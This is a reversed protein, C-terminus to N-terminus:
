QNWSNAAHDWEVVRDDIFPEGNTPDARLVACMFHTTHKTAWVLYPANTSGGTENYSILSSYHSPKTPGDPTALNDLLVKDGASVYFVAVTFSDLTEDSMNKVQIRSRLDYFVRDSEMHWSITNKCTTVRVPSDPQDMIETTDVTKAYVTASCFFVLWSGIVLQLSAGFIKNPHKPWDVELTTLSM